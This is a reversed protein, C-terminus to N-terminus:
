IWGSTMNEHKLKNHSLMISILLHKDNKATTFVTFQRWNQFTFLVQGDAQLSKLCFCLQGILTSLVGRLFPNMLVKPWVIVSGLKKPWVTVPGFRHDRLMMSILLRKANKANTYLYLVFQRWNQLPLLIQDLALLSKLCFCLQGILTSPIGRLFSTM